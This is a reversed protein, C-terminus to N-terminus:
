PKGGTVSSITASNIEEIAQALQQANPTSYHWSLKNEMFSVGKGKQTHAIVVHPRPDDKFQPSRLANDIENLDHGNIQTM